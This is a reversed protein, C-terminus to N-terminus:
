IDLMTGIKNQWNSVIGTGLIETVTIGVFRRYECLNQNNEMDQAM